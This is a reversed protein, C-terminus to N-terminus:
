MQGELIGFECSFPWDLASLLLCESIWVNEFINCYIAGDCRERWWELSVYFPGFNCNNHYLFIKLYIAIHGEMVDTGRANWVWMTVFIRINLYKLIYQLINSWWVQGELLGTGGFCRTVFIRINLYIKICKLIGRMINTERTNWIWMWFDLVMITDDLDVNVRAKVHSPSRLELYKWKTLILVKRWTLFDHISTQLTLYTRVFCWSNHSQLFVHFDCM